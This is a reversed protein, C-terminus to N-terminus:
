AKYYTPIASCARETVSRINWVAAVPVHIMAAMKRVQQNHEYELAWDIHPILLQRLDEAITITVFDEELLEMDALGYLVM